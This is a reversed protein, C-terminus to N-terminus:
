WRLNLGKLGTLWIQRRIKQRYMKPSKVLNKFDALNRVDPCFKLTEKKWATEWLFIFKLKFKILIQIVRWEPGLETGSTGWIEFIFFIKFIWKKFKKMEEELWENKEVGNEIECSKTGDEMIFYGLKLLQSMQTKYREREVEGKKQFERM